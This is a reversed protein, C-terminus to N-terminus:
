NEIVKMFDKLARPNGLTHSLPHGKLFMFVEDNLQRAKNESLVNKLVTTNYMSAFSAKDILTLFYEAINKQAEIKKQANDDLKEKYFTLFMGFYDKYSGFLMTETYILDKLKREFAEDSLFIASWSQLIVDRNKKVFEKGFHNILDEVWSSSYEKKEKASNRKIIDGIDTIAKLYDTLQKNIANTYDTNSYHSVSILYNNWQNLVEKTEKDDFAMAKSYVQLIKNFIIGINKGEEESQPIKISQLLQELQDFDDNATTNQAMCLVFVILVMACCIANSKIRYLLMLFGKGILV